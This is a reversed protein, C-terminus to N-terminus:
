WTRIVVQSCYDRIENARARRASIIRIHGDRITYAVAFFRGEFRGIVQWRMENSRPSEKLLVPGKFIHASDEFDIGHKTRNLAAKTADWEFRLEITYVNAM